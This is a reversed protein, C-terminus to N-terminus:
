PQLSEWLQAASREWPFQKARDLGRQTLDRRMSENSLVALLRDELEPPQSPDFLLGADAVVEPLAGARAAIVPAACAMAELVTLGFGEDLSPLVFASANRYLDPLDADRVYGLFRAGATEVPLSPQQFNRDEGGAILLRLNPFRRHIAKWAVLLVGLNKRPQISGVYLLYSGHLGRPRSHRPCFHDTDVGGPVVAIREPPLSYKRLLKERMYVSSVIVRRVRRVLLPVFQRYWLGFAPNFWEPHELPSLDHLTLVQNAVIVPGTNAPSWLIQEASLQRPLIFQEWAHGAAGQAGNRPAVPRVRGDLRRLIEGAYREVGTTRRSLFRGNVVVNM